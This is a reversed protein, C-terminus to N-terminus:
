GRTHKEFVEANGVDCHKCKILLGVIQQTEICKMPGLYQWDHVGLLCALKRLLWNM